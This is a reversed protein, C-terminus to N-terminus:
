ESKERLRVVFFFDKFFFFTFSSVWCRIPLLFFFFSLAFFPEAFTLFLAGYLTDKRQFLSPFPFFFFLQRLLCVCVCAAPRLLDAHGNAVCTRSRYIDHIPSSDSSLGFAASRRIMTRRLLDGSSHLRRRLSWCRM